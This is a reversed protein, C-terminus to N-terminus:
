ECKEYSEPIVFYIKELSDLNTKRYDLNVEIEQRPTYIIVNVFTPAMFTGILERPEYLIEIMTSDEPSIIQMSKLNTLDDTLTYYTIIERKEQRENRRIDRKKHSCMTYAFPDNIRYYEQGPNYDVPKGTLLEEINEYDFDVGFQEKIFNLNEKEYCKDRRNTLKISDLTVLTNVMPVNAFSIVANVASDNVIRVSTKFSLNQASDKYKTSIKSYFYDFSIGSLSDLVETIREDKQKPLEVKEVNVLERSSGCSALLAIFLAPLIFKFLQTM